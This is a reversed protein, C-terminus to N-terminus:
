QDLRWHPDDYLESANASRGPHGYSLRSSVRKGGGRGGGGGGGRWRRNALWNLIGPNKVLLFGSAAGALHGIHSIGSNLGSSLAWFAELVLFIIVMHKLKMPIVAYVYVTANPVIFYCAVLIAFVAGSFGVLGIHAYSANDIIGSIGYIAAHAIGGAIIALLIFWTYRRGGMAREVLGGFFFLAISNMLIHFFGGHLFGYTAFQWLMFRPFIDIPQLVLIGYLFNAVGPLVAELLAQCLWIGWLALFIRRTVPPLYFSLIQDVKRLM